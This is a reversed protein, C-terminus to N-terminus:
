RARSPALPGTLLGQAEVRAVVVDVHRERESRPLAAAVGVARRWNTYRRKATAVAGDKLEDPLEPTHILYLLTLRDLMAMLIAMADRLETIREGQADLTAGLREETRALLSHILGQHPQGLQGASSVVSAMETRLTVYESLCDAICKSLSTGRAAAEQKLRRYDVVSVYSHIERRLRAMESGGYALGADIDDRDPGAVDGVVRELHDSNAEAHATPPCGIRRARRRASLAPATGRSGHLRAAGLVERSAV